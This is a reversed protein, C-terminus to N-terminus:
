SAALLGPHIPIWCGYSGLGSRELVVGHVRMQSSFDADQPRPPGCLLLTGSRPSQDMPGVETDKALPALEDGAHNQDRLVVDM